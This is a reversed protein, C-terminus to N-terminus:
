NGLMWRELYSPIFAEWYLAQLVPIASLILLILFVIRGSISTSLKSYVRWGAWALFPMGVICWRIGITTGGYNNTRWLVYVFTMLFAVTMGWMLPRGITTKDRLMTWLGAVGLLLLPTLSFLGHHGFTINFFYLWRLDNLKDLGEPNNWISGPYHYLENQLYVPLLSGTQVYYYAETVALPIIAVAGALFAKKWNSQLLFLGIVATFGLGTFDNAGGYGILFGTLLYLWLPQYKRYCALWTLVFAITFCVASLVHNNITVAYGYALSGISLALMVAILTERKQTYLWTLCWVLFLMISYPIVQNILTLLRFQSRQGDYFSKGSLQSIVWGQAAMVMPYTPPKSSYLAGNIMVADISLEYPTTDTRSVHAFTGADVLREVTIM